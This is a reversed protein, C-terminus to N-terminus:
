IFGMNTVLVIVFVLLAKWGEILVSQFCFHCRSFTMIRTISDRGPCPFTLPFGGPIFLSHIKSRDAWCLWLQQNQRHLVRTRWGSIHETRRKRRRLYPLGPGSNAETPCEEDNFSLVSGYSSDAVRRSLRRQISSLWDAISGCTGVHQCICAQLPVFVRRIEDWIKPCFYHLSIQVLTPCLSGWIGFAVYSPRWWHGRIPVWDGQANRSCRCAVRTFYQGGWKVILTAAASGGAGGNRCNESGSGWFGQSMSGTRTSSGLMRWPRWRRWASWSPSTTQLAGATLSRGSRNRPTTFVEVPKPKGSADRGDRLIGALKSHKFTEQDVMSRFTEGASILPCGLSFGMSKWM